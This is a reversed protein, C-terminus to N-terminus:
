CVALSLVIFGRQSRAQLYKYISKSTLGNSIIKHVSDEFVEGIAEVVQPHHTPEGGSQEVMGYEFGMSDLTEKVLLLNNRVNALYHEDLSVVDEGPPAAVHIGCGACGM